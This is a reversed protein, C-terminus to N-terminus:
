TEMQSSSARHLQLCVQWPQKYLKTDLKDLNNINLAHASHCRQRERCFQEVPKRVLHHHLPLRHVLLIWCGSVKTPKRLLSRPRSLVCEYPLATARCSLQTRTDGCHRRMPHLMLLGLLVLLTKGLLTTATAPPYQGLSHMWTSLVQDNLFVYYLCHRCSM